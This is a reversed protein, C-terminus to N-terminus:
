DITKQNEKLRLENQRELSNLELHSFLKSFLFGPKEGIAMEILFLEYALVISSNKRSLDKLRKLAIGTKFAISALTTEEYPRLIAGLSTLKSGDIISKSGKINALRLNKYANEIFLNIPTDIALAILYFKFAAIARIEGNRIRSLESTPIGTKVSVDINSIGQSFFITGIENGPATAKM